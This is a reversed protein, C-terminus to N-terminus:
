KKELRYTCSCKPCYLRFLDKEDQLIKEGCSCFMEFEPLENFKSRCSLCARDGREIATRDLDCGCMWCQHLGIRIEQCSDCVKVLCDLNMPKGCSDYIPHNRLEVYCDECKM